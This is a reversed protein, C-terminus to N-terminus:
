VQTALHQLQLTEFQWTCRSEERAAQIDHDFARAVNQLTGQLQATSMCGRTRSTTDAGPEVKVHGTIWSKKTASIVPKEDSSIKIVKDDLDDDRIAGM